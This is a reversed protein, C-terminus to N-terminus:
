LQFPSTRQTISAMFNNLSITPLKQYFQLILQRYTVLLIQGVKIRISGDYCKLNWYKLEFKLKHSKSNLTWQKFKLNLYINLFINIAFLLFRVERLEYKYLHANLSHSNIRSSIYFAQMHSKSVFSNAYPRRLCSTGNSIDFIAAASIVFASAICGPYPNKQFNL